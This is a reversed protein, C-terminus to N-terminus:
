EFWIRAAVGAHDSPWLGSSTRDAEDNGLVNAKVREPEESLFIMDIREYLDAPLSLDEDFCCTYGKPKGPRLTWTDVYGAGVLDDVFQMYPPVIWGYSTSFIPSHEPSSNIDGVVIIPENLASLGNLVTILEYAQFAQVVASDTNDPDPFRVELHTNFFLGYPTSIGVYGREFNIPGVDPIDASAVIQYNCGDESQYDSDCYWAPPIVETYVDERALIVDRDIVSVEVSDITLSLNLNIVTAAVYYEAGQDELATLLDDLYDRYPPPGNAGNITLNYVEQLGVLHPNKDAIEAALAVARESFDNAAIQALAAQVGEVFELFNEAGALSQIEAGIYLNRTMVTLDPAKAFGPIQVFVISLLIISGIFFVKKSIIGAKRM